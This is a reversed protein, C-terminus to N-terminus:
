LPPEQQSDFTPKQTTQPGTTTTFFQAIQQDETPMTTSTISSSDFKRLSSQYKKM